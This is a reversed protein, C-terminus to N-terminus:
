PCLCWLRAGRTFCGPGFANRASYPTAHLNEDSQIYKEITKQLREVMENQNLEKISM